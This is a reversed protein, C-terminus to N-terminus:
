QELQRRKRFFERVFYGGKVINTIITSMIDDIKDPKCLHLSFCSYILDAKHLKINEFNGIIFELNTKDAIKETIIERSKEEKDVCTVKFGKEILFKTDNGAGAGLDIAIKEKLNKDLNMDFFGRLLPAPKSIKKTNKYFEDVNKM